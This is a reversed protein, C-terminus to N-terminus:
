TPDGLASEAPRHQPSIRGGRGFRYNEGRWRFERSTFSGAWTMFGMLDRLPYLWCFRVAMEDQLVRGGVVLCQTIRNAIAVAFLSFGLARYGAGLGAALGLIGFPVAYTLGTGIHGLPRSYRTSKMWRLQDGLSDKWSRPMLVHGVGPQALKVEYGAKWVENGLVFDDSYFDATSAIGGIKQLADRRVAMVAGLAFRMGELMDAVLVGSPLEVTMGLAELLSWFDGSPIGRYLCTVLGTKEDLLPPIVRRLFDPAVLVDSDSIVLFSNKSERIMRDLSFVKANPWIPPGSLIVRSSVHPYKQRVQQAVQLAANDSDRAGILIEFNPYDQQFFSELNEFLRPEMGHVPKLLTVAPLTNPDLDSVGGARQSSSRYRVAAILVLLLFVTSSVSGVVALALLIRWMLVSAVLSSCSFLM